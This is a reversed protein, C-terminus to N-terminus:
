AERRSIFDAIYNNLSESAEFQMCHGVDEIVTLGADPIADSIM